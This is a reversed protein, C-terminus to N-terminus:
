NGWATTDGSEFGDAFLPTVPPTGGTTVVRVDDIYWGLYDYESSDTGFRWRLVITSGISTTLDFSAQQWGASSGTYGSSNNLGAVDSDPYNGDPTLLQFAGGDVSILVQGGDWSNEIAYWHAFELHASELDAPLVIEPSDLTWNADDVGYNGGIVTGWVKSAPVAGTDTDTGWQWSGTAVFGGSDVEFQQDFVTQISALEVDFVTNGATVSIQNEISGFGPATVYLTHAGEWVGLITYGGIGNTVVAGLATDTLEVEAGAVPLGTDRDTVLGTISHSALATMLVDRRTSAGDTTVIGSATTTEYGEATFQLNWTGAEIPRHYDGIDPDAYSFTKYTESDHGVVKITAAVPGGSSADTVLGSIGYRAEKMFDLLAQRNYGWHAELQNSDLTKSSSLEITVERCGEFYNMYDQRSGNTQYWDYGNTVGDSTVDTFYGSPSDSQVNDAYVYSVTQFWEDDAHRVSWTDWPYNVVEAGGHFNASMTFSESKTLDIMAQVETYWSGSDPDDSTSPDPFSRNPDAGNSLSRQSGSVNSDGGAFTGDPNALPNIWIVIGDVLGSIESDTAYLTLLEHALRLTLVYGATEDGHMTGTYFFEPEDEEVDVNDSIRLALLRHDGDQTGGFDVLSCLNPYTTAYYNMLDTYQSYTPYCNWSAPPEFPPGDPDTCMTYARPDRDDSTLEYTFGLRRLEKLDEPTAWGYLDFGRTREDLNIIEGVRDQEVRDAVRLQILQPPDTIAVAATAILLLFSGVVVRLSAQRMDGGGGPTKEGEGVGGLLISWSM